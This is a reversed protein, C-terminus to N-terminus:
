KGERPPYRVRSRQHAHHHHGGPHFVHDLLGDAAHFRSAHLHRQDVIYKAPPPEKRMRHLEKDADPSIHTTGVLSNIQEIARKRRAARVHEEVAKAYPASVSVGAQKAAEEAAKGIEDPVHVTVRM